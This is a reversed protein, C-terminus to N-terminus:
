SAKPTDLAYFMSNGLARWFQHMLQPHNSCGEAPM